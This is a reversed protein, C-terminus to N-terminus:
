EEDEWFDEPERYKANRQCPNFMQTGLTSDVSDKPNFIHSVGTESPFSCGFAARLRYVVQREATGKGHLDPSRAIEILEDRSCAAYKEVVEEPIDDVEVQEKDDLSRYAEPWDDPFIHGIDNYDLRRSRHMTKIRMM